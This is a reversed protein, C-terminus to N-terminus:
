SSHYTVELGLVVQLVLIVEDRAKQLKPWLWQPSPLQLVSIELCEAFPKVLLPRSTFTAGISIM